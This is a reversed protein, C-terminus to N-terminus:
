TAAPVLAAAALVEIAFYTWVPYLGSPREHELVFAPRALAAVGMLALGAAVLLVLADAV